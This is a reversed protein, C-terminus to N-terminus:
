KKELRYALYEEGVKNNKWKQCIKYGLRAFVAECLLEVAMGTLSCTICELVSWGFFFHSVLLSFVFNDVFQGLATSIYSRLVYVSYKDSNKFAKGVLFNTFNNVASSILFAFASGIIVYWTGGFTRDLANNIVTNNGDGGVFSASWQGDILSVAFFILCAALNLLTAIVSLETAAKPGFHKTIIDMILFCVWSIIMGCDLALWDIPLNISKNALLNMSFVTLIFVALVLSPVSRILLGLEYFYNKIKKIM